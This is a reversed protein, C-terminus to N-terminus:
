TDVVTAVSAALARGWARYGAPSLHFRDAAFGTEPSILLAGVPLHHVHPERRAVRRLQADLLRAYGGLPLRAWPPLSPFRHVPPLGVLLVPVPGGRGLRHRISTVLATIDRRFAAPPRLRLADNAGAVVLVLDPQWRTAPETLRDLMTARVFRATAGRRATVRWSVERGTLAALGAALQGALAEAHTAAGVGAAASDGIMAIRLTPANGPVLGSDDGAAEPLRPIHRTMRRILTKTNM